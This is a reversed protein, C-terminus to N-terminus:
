EDGGTCWVDSPIGLTVRTETGICGGQPAIWTQNLNARDWVPDGYGDDGLLDASALANWVLASDRYIPEYAADLAEPTPANGSDDLVPLCRLLEVVVDVAILLGACRVDSTAESPFPEVTRYVREIAVVLQGCCDDWAVEGLAVYATSIPAAGGETLAEEVHALVAAAVTRPTEM